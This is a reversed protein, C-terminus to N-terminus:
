PQCDCCGARQRDDERKMIRTQREQQETQPELTITLELGLELNLCILEMHNALETKENEAQNRRKRRNQFAKRKGDAQRCREM